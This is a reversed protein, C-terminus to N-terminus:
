SHNFRNALSEIKDLLGRLHEKNTMPNMLTTRLYVEGNLLTQVIYYEGDELLRQRIRTNLNNWEARHTGTFRFCVINSMPEVALEFNPRSKIMEAFSAAHDYLTNVNEEFIDFGYAVLISYFKVSMMLKTCEFTRKAYNFWEPDENKEWLYHADQNFTHYSNNGNKFLLVTALAPNMMMKHLDISVSDAKEIGSLLTKYKKSFIAAGGHAADVHLWLKHKQCFMATKDLDDYMGTATSCANAVVAIVKRGNKEATRFQEELLNTRLKFNDDVPIKILGEEGLGMMRVVRDVSYHAHESVMVALKRTYGDKWINEDPNIQRAALLATFTALTGGSTLFGDAGPGFGLQSTFQKAIWKELASSVPGMEYVAMGNNLLASVMDALATVPLPASIQHGMYKPHHLHISQEIVDSFFRNLGFDKELYGKWYDYQEDPNKWHLVKEDKGPNINILYDALMDILQHGTKRFTEPDYAKNLLTNSM